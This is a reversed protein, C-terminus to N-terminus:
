FDGIDCQLCTIGNRRWMDVVQQRDDVVFEIIKGAALLRNLIEEKIIHDARFDNDPRMLIQGFPIENWVLWQETLIRSRENRGTVLIVEYANLTWLSKYLTVIPANPTDGGMEANFSKWDPKDQDLHGRRHAIDALTGDIDFLIVKKPM